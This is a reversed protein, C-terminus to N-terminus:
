RRPSEDGARQEDRDAERRGPLAFAFTSGERDDFEAWARGGLAELTERVISLGLGTGEVGSETGGHARFFREFLRDRAEAPVGVGNDRVEVVVEAEGGEVQRLEGRVEVWRDSRAPDFYKIANSIYNALCLEVAAANVEVEPMPEVVSVTVGRAHAAARLQRVVEAAARSLLINRHQRADTDLRSLSILNDLTGQIERANEGIMEVFRQRRDDDLWSEDLLSQAGLIAGVQNKLEHSVMRNFARLREEREA